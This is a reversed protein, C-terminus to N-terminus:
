GELHAWRLQSGAEVGVKLSRGIVERYDSVAIGDGPKRFTIDDMSLIHGAPLDAKVVISKTFIARLPALRAAEQAKDIPSNLATRIQRGGDVLRRLEEFTVSAPVDPGFMAPHFTVHVEILAAGLAIAALGAHSTASHDSLGVPCDYREQLQQLVNLGWREPPCPYATTCQFMALPAGHRRVVAAARDLEEFPSMGSSLMVPKGTAAMQEILPLNTMEGSAVKWAAMGLRDLMEVAQSSFATSLFVLGREAAHAALDRWAQEPFEMREWYDYRSADIRSFKVRWPEATTTEEAATHTQYKIADAGADAAADIFSHAININGDHSQAVEAIVFPAHGGGIHRGGLEISLM